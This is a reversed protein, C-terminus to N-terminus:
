KFILKTLSKSLRLGKSYDDRFKVKQSNTNLSIRPCHSNNETAVFIVRSRFTYLAGKSVKVGM